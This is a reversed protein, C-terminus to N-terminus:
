EASVHLKGKRYHNPFFKCSPIHARDQREPKISPLLVCAWFPKLFQFATASRLGWGLEMLILVYIYIFCIGMALWLATFKLAHAQPQDPNLRM